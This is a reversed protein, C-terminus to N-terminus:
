NSEDDKQSFRVKKTKDGGILTAWFTKLRYWYAKMAMIAAALAGIIIQIVMSGTGPDLYAYAFESYVVGLLIITFTAIIM